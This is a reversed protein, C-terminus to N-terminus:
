ENEQVELCEKCVLKGDKHGWGPPVVHERIHSVDVPELFILTETKGCRRCTFVVHMEHKSM